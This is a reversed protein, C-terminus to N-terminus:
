DNSVQKSQENPTPAPTEEIIDVDITNPDSAEQIPPHQADDTIYQEDELDKGLLVVKTSIETPILKAAIQYFEKPNKKGWTIINSKADKQLENFADLVTDRVTRMLITSSNQQGKKRGSGEPKPAGKKFLHDKNGM